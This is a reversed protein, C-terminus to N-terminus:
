VRVNNAYADLTNGLNWGLIIDNVIDAATPKHIMLEEQEKEKEKEQVPEDSKQQNGSGENEKEAPTITTNKDETRNDDSAQKCGTLALICILILGLLLKNKIQRMNIVM